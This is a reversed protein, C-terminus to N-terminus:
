FLLVRYVIYFGYKRVYKACRTEPSFVCAWQKKGTYIVYKRITMSIIKCLKCQMTCLLTFVATKPQHFALTYATANPRSVGGLVCQLWDWCAAGAPPPRRPWPRHSPPCSWSFAQGPTRRVRQPGATGETGGPCQAAGAVAWPDRRADRFSFRPGDGPFPLPGHEMSGAAPPPCTM